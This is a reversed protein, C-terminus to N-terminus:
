RRTEQPNEKERLVTERSFLEATSFLFLSQDAGLGPDPPSDLARWIRPLVNRRLGNWDIYQTELHCAWEWQVSVKHVNYFMCLISSTLSHPLHVYRRTNEEQGWHWHGAGAQSAGQPTLRSAVTLACFGPSIQKMARGEKKSRTIKLHPWGMIFVCFGFCLSLSVTLSSCLYLLSVSLSLFVSLPLM